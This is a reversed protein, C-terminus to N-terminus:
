VRVGDIKGCAGAPAPFMNADIAQKVKAKHTEFEQSVTQRQRRFVNVLAEKYKITHKM